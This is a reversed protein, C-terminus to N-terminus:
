LVVPTRCWVSFRAIGVTTGADGVRAVGAVRRRPRGRRRGVGARPRASANTVGVQGARGNM